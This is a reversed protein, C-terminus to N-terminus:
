EWKVAGYYVVFPSKSYSDYYLTYNKTEGPRIKTVSTVGKTDILEANKNKKDVLEIDKPYFILTQSSMNKFTVTVKYLGGGNESKEGTVFPLPMEVTVKANDSYLYSQGFNKIIYTNKQKTESGDTDDFSSGGELLEEKSSTNAQQNLEGSKSLFITTGAFFLVSTIFLMTFIATLSIGIYKTQLVFILIISIAIGLLGILCFFGVLLYFFLM